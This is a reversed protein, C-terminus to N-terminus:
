QASKCDTCLNRQIAVYRSGYNCAQRRWHMFRCRVRQDRIKELCKPPFLM